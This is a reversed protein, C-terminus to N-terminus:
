LKNQQTGAAILGNPNALEGTSSLGPSLQVPPPNPLGERREASNQRLDTSWPLVWGQTEWAKKVISARQNCPKLRWRQRMSTKSTEIAWSRPQMFWGLPKMNIKFSLGYNPRDVEAANLRICVSLSLSFLGMCLFINCFRFYLPKRKQCASHSCLVINIGSNLLKGPRFICSFASHGYCKSPEKVAIPVSDGLTGLGGELEVRWNDKLVRIIMGHSSLFDLPGVPKEPPWM